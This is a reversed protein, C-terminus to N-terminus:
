TYPGTHSGLLANLNPKSFHWGLGLPPFIRKEIERSKKVGWYKSKIETWFSRFM